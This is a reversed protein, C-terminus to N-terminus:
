ASRPRPRLWAALRLLATAIGAAAAIARPADWGLGPEPLFTVGFAILLLWIGSRHLRVWSRGLRRQAARSSTAAMAFLWVSLLAGGWFSVPETTFNQPFAAALWALVALHLAHSVAVGNGVYRRNRLLWDLAARGGAGGPLLQHLPRAIAALLLCAFGWHATLRVLARLGAEGSGLALLSLACALLLGAGLWVTIGWGRFGPLGAPVAARL